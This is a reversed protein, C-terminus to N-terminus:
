PREPAPEGSPEVVESDRQLAAEFRRRARHLRVALTARSCGLVRAAEARSVGDWALLILLERDPEPLSALAEALGEREALEDGPDTGQDPRWESALRRELAARRQEARYRNSLLKRAIGLLWPLDEAGHREGRRRWAVVFADAAVEEAAQRDMTRRMAYALVRPYVDRYLRAFQEDRAAEGDSSTGQRSGPRVQM